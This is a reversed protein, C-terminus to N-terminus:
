HSRRFENLLRREANERLFIQGNVGGVGGECLCRPCLGCHVIWVLCGGSIGVGEREPWVSTLILRRHPGARSPIGLRSEDAVAKSETIQIGRGGPSLASRQGGCCVPKQVHTRGGEPYAHFKCEDYSVSQVKPPMTGTPSVSSCPTKSASAVAVSVMANAGAGARGKGMSPMPNVSSKNLWSTLM